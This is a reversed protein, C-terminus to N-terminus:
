FVDRDSEMVKKLVAELRQMHQRSQECLHQLNKKIELRQEKSFACMFHPNNLHRLYLPIATKEITIGVKLKEILTEKKM